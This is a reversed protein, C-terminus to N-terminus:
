GDRHKNLLILLEKDDFKESLKLFLVNELLKNRLNLEILEKSTKINQEKIEQLQSKTKSYQMGFAFAFAVLQIVLGVWFELSM